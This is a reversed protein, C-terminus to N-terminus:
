AAPTNATIADGLDTASKSLSDALAQLAVPDTKLSAIQAALGKILTVASEEVTTNKTVQAQLDALTAMELQEKKLLQDLKAEIRNLQHWFM